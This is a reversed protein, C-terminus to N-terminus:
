KDQVNEDRIIWDNLTNLAVFHHRCCKPKEAVGSNSFMDFTRYKEPFRWGSVDGSFKSDQFMGDMNVTGKEPFKWNSVDGNFESSAFMERTDAVADFEWNPVDRNFLAGKFMRRVRTVKPFHWKSIDGNFKSYFFMETLNTANPFEWESIDGSFISHSFMATMDTANLFKWKSIDGNFRSHAFMHECEEVNRVDWLSIDGQFSEHAFLRTMKKVDSTDIWNLNEHDEIVSCISLLDYDSKPKFCAYLPHDISKIDSVDVKMKRKDKDEVPLFTEEKVWKIMEEAYDNIDIIDILYKFNRNNQLLDRFVVSTEDSSMPSRVIDLLCQRDTDSLINFVDKSTKLDSSMKGVQEIFATLKSKKKIKQKNHVITSNSSITNIEEINFM